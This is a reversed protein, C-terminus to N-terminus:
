LGLVKKAVELAEDRSVWYNIANPIEDKARRFARETFKHKDATGKPVKATQGKAERRRAVSALCEELSTNLFILHNTLDMAKTHKVDGSLMLGEFIVDRGAEAHEKVLKYIAETGKLTDCGGCDNEYSGLVALMRKSGPRSLLYYYPRKRGELSVANVEDYCKMIERVLHSKGSGSTGRVSIISGPEPTKGFWVGKHQLSISKM